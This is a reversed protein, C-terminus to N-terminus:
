IEEVKIGFEKLDNIFQVPEVFNAQHWVGTKKDKNVLYQKVCAAIPIATMEYADENYLNMEFYKRKNNKIGESKLKLTVGYPQNSFYKLGFFFLKSIIKLSSKTFLKLYIIIFPILLLDVFWNFGSVYFATENLSNYKLPLNLMEDLYMAYFRQKGYLKGFDIIIKDTYPSNIWKNNKFILPKVYQLEKIFEIITEKSFTYSGWNLKLLGYVNSKEIKDFERSSYSILAAPIGPHFGGDTIFCLNKVKIINDLSFLYDNKEKSINIDFYDVGSEIAEDIILKYYELTPSCVIVMDINKFVRKLDGSNGANLIFSNVRNCQHISNLKDSLIKSKDLSRGAIILNCDTNLMLHEAVLKGTNGYGGIILITKM